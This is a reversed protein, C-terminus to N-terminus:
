FDTADKPLEKIKNIYETVNIDYQLPYTYGLKEALVTGIDQILIGARFLKQWMDEYDITSYLNIFDNYRKKSLLRKFWKGCKGVNVKWNYRLGIEWSLIKRICDILIVDFMYKAIPLEDRWIAKAVYTQIWWSENFVKEFEDQTPKIVYHKSENSLSLIPAINDKDLLIKSLTDEKIVEEIKSIDSFRLDIRVGDKFQMLFIYSRDRFNNQQFIVLEGFENIWEQNIKYSIDEINTIFFVIDYDQMIDKPANPNVRSGNIMVARVREDQKAFTMIQRIVENEKRMNIVVGAVSQKYILAMSPADKVDDKM